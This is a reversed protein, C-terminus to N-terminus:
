AVAGVFSARGGNFQGGALSIPWKARAAPTAHHASPRFPSNITMAQRASCVATATM